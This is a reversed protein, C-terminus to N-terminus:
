YVRKGYHGEITKTLIDLSHFGKAIINDSRFLINQNSVGDNRFSPSVFHRGYMNMADYSSINIIGDIDIAYYDYWRHGKEYLCVVYKGALENDNKNTYINIEIDIFRIIGTSDILVFRCNRPNKRDVIVDSLTYVEGLNNIDLHNIPVENELYIFKKGKYSLLNTLGQSNLDFYYKTSACSIFFFAIIIIFVFKKM